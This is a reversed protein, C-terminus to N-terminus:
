KSSLSLAPKEVPLEEKKPENEEIFQKKLLNLQGECKQCITVLTEFAKKIEDLNFDKSLLNKIAPTELSKIINNKSHELFKSKQLSNNLDEKFKKVLELIADKEKSSKQQIDNNDSGENKQAIQEQIHENFNEVWDFLSDEEAMKYRPDYPPDDQYTREALETSDLFGSIDMQFGLGIANQISMQTLQAQLISVKGDSAASINSKAISKVKNLFNSLTEIAKKAESKDKEESKADRFM